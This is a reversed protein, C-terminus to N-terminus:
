TKICFMLAVNRGRTENSSVTAGDAGGSAQNSGALAAGTSSPDAGFNNIKYYLHTHEELAHGQKTGVNDGTTGDGRDTRSAADPDKGATNDFGRIFEGRLDPLTFSAGSGGYTYGIVAFLAAYTTTSVSSGDCELYGTPATGTTWMIVTGTPNANNAWSGSGSGNAVYVQGAAAAAAGKPEHLSVGTLDRHNTNAM